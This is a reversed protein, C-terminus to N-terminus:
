RIERLLEGHLRMDHFFDQSLPLLQGRHIALGFSGFRFRVREACDGCCRFPVRIVSKRFEAGYTWSVTQTGGFHGEGFQGM